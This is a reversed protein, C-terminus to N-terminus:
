ESCVTTGREARRNAKWKEADEPTRFATHGKLGKLFFVRTEKGESGSFGLSVLWARMYYKENEEITQKPNVRKQESARKVMASALRCYEMMNETQPFGTFTINGDKFTVGKCGGHETIFDAASAADEFTKEALVDTLTDTVLICERGVARNILYQKSHMMNILNIIGQPTVEGIPIKIEAESGSEEQPTEETEETVTVDNQFLVRRVEDEMSDDEFIVKSERDVTISGIQYAFSPPGLYVAREGFHESLTKVLSKRNEANTIIEMRSHEKGKPLVM